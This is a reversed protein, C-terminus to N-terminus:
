LDGGWEIDEFEAGLDFDEVYAEMSLTLLLNSLQLPEVGIITPAEYAPVVSGKKM